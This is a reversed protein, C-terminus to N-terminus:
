YSIPQRHGLRSFGPILLLDTRRSARRDFRIEPSEMPNPCCSPGAAWDTSQVGPRKSPRLTRTASRKRAEWSERPRQRPNGDHHSVLGCRILFLGMRRVM